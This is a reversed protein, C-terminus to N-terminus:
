PVCVGGSLLRVLSALKILVTDSFLGTLSLISNAEDGSNKIVGRTRNDLSFPWPSAEFNM